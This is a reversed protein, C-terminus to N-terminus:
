EVPVKPMKELIRMLSGGGGDSGGGGGGRSQQGSYGLPLRQRTFLAQMGDCSKQILPSVQKMPLLRTFTSICRTRWHVNPDPQINGRENRPQFGKSQDGNLPPPRKEGNSQEKGRGQESASSMGQGANGPANPKRGATAKRRRCRHMQIRDRAEAVNWKMEFSPLLEKPQGGRLLMKTFDTAFGDIEVPMVTEQLWRTCLDPCDKEANYHDPFGFEEKSRIPTPFMLPKERDLCHEMCFDCGRTTVMIMYQKLGDLFLASNELPGPPPPAAVM